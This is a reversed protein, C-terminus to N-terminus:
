IYLTFNGLYETDYYAYMLPCPSRNRIAYKRGSELMAYWIQRLDPKELPMYSLGLQQQLWLAGILYGARGVFLEDSGQKLFDIQKCFQGGALYNKISQRRLNENGTLKGFVAGIANFGAKGLLFGALDM